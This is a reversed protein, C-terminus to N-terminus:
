EKGRVLYDLSTGFFDTMDVLLDISAMKIGSEIRGVTSLTVGLTDALKQQTIGRKMRLNRVRSGIGKVDIGM